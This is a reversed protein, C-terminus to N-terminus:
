SKVWLDLFKKRESDFDHPDNSLMLVRKNYNKQKLDSFIPEFEITGEGIPLHKDCKLAMERLDAKSFSNLQNKQVLEQYIQCANNDHINVTEIRDFYSNIHGIARNRTAFIQGHGVDLAMRLKPLEDFILMLETYYFVLTEIALSIGSEQAADYLLPLTQLFSDIDKDEYLMTSIPGHFVVLDADIMAGIDVFPVVETAMDIPSWQPDSPLHLTCSVGAERMAVKADQFCITHHLDMRLEIFDPSAKLGNLVQETTRAYTGIQM